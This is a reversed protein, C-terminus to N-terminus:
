TRTQKHTKTEGNERDNDIETEIQTKTETQWSALTQKYMCLIVYEHVIDYLSSYFHLLNPPFVQPLYMWVCYVEAEEVEALALPILACDCRWVTFCDLVDDDKGNNAFVCM